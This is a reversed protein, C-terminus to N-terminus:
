PILLTPYSHALEAAASHLLLLDVSAKTQLFCHPLGHDLTAGVRQAVTEAIPLLNEVFIIPLLLLLTEVEDILLKSAHLKLLLLEEFVHLTSLSLLQLLEFYDPCHLILAIPCVLLGIGVQGLGGNVLDRIEDLGISFFSPVDEM